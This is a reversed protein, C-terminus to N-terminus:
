RAGGPRVRGRPLLTVLGWVVGGGLWVLGLLPLFRHWWLDCYVAMTPAHEPPMPTTCLSHHLLLMLAGSAALLVVVLEAILLLRAMIRSAM